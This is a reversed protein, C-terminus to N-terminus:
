QFPQVTTPNQPPRRLMATAMELLLPHKSIHNDRLESLRRRIFARVNHRLSLSAPEHSTQPCRISFSNTAGPPLVVFIRAEAPDVRRVDETHANHELVGSQGNFGPFAWELQVLQQSRSQNTLQVTGSFSKVCLTGQLDVRHLVSRQVATGASCWNIDPALRNIRGVADILDDPRRFADHHECILVPVGFFLRFAIDADQTFIGTRRLFLPFGSFCLVAPQVLERLKLRAPQGQPQANSNVAADFNHSRLAAMAETSFRGQPFIMVRDCPVSTIEGHASIRNEATRIMATLRSPDRSAFEAETHDNGHFCISLRDSHERFLKTVRPSSRRFNHPIFAITTSFHHKEMLRLLCEYNLFGYNPCLLPDDVTVCAYNQVPHWCRDRFIHRMAIAHPVLRSFSQSMWADGAEADLDVVDESGVLFVESNDLRVAAVHVQRGITILERCGHETHSFVRDNVRDVTGLSIGSFPGCIERSNAAVVYADVGEPVPLVAQVCDATLMRILSSHFSDVRVAHILVNRFPSVLSALRETCRLQGDTWGRIVEPNILLCGPEEACESTFSAPLSGTAPPLAVPVCAVGFHQALRILRADEKRLEGWYPVVLTM